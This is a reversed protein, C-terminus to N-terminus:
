PALRVWGTGQWAMDCDNRGVDGQLALAGIDKVRLKDLVFRDGERCTPSDTGSVLTLRTVTPDVTWTGLDALETNGTITSYTGDDRLEVLYGDQTDYWTARVADYGAPPDWNAGPPSKIDSFFGAPLVPELVWQFLSPAHCGSPQRGVPLVHLPGDASVVARLDFARGACGSTGGEVDVSITGGEVAYTGDVRPDTSLRGTDDFSFRGDSTFMFLTTGNDLRWVGPLMGATVADGTLFEKEMDTLPSPSPAPPAPSPTSDDSSLGQWTAVGVVVAAVAAVAAVGRRRNRGRGNEIRENVEARADRLDSETVIVGGTVAEIDRSLREEITSM